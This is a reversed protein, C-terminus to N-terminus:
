LTYVETLTSLLLDIPIDPNDKYGSLLGFSEFFKSPDLNFCLSGESQKCRDLCYYKHLGAFMCIFSCDTM